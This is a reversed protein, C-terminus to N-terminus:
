ILYDFLELLFDLLTILQYAIDTASNYLLIQFRQVVGKIRHVYSEIRADRNQNGM